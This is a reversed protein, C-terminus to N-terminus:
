TSTWLLESSPLLLLWFEEGVDEGLFFTLVLPPLATLLPKWLPRRVFPPEADDVEDFHVWGVANGENGAEELSEKNGGEEAM